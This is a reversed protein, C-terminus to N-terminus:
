STTWALTLRVQRCHTNWRTTGFMIMRRGEAYSRQDGEFAGEERTHEWPMYHM